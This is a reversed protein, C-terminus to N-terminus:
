KPFMSGSGFNPDQEPIGFPTPIKTAVEFVRYCTNEKHCRGHTQGLKKWAVIRLLTKTRLDITLAGVFVQAVEFLYSVGAGLLFCCQSFSCFHHFIVDNEGVPLHPNDSKIVTTRRRRRQRRM